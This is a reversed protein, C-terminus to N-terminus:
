KYSVNTSDEPTILSISNSKLKPDCVFQRSFNSYHALILKLIVLIVNILVKVLDQYSDLIRVSQNSNVVSGLRVKNGGGYPTVINKTSTLDINDSRLTSESILRGCDTCFTAATDPDQDFSTGGCDPCEGNSM